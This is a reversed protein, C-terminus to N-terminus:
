SQCTLLHPLGPVRCHVKDHCCGANISVAADGIYQSGSSPLMKNQQLLLHPADREWIGRWAELHSIDDALNTFSVQVYSKLITCVERM